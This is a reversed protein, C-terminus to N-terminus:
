TALQFWYSQIWLRLSLSESKSCPIWALSWELSPARSLNMQSPLALPVYCMFYSSRFLYFLLICHLNEQLRVNKARFLLLMGLCLSYQQFRHIMGEQDFQMVGKLTWGLEVHNNIKNWSPLEKIQQTVPLSEIFFLSLKISGFNQYGQFIKM